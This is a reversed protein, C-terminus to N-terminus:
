WGRWWGWTFALGLGGGDCDAGLEARHWRTRGGCWGAPYRTLILEGGGDGGGRTMVVATVVAAVTWWETVVVVVTVVVTVVTVVTVVMVVMAITVLHLAISVPGVEVDVPAALLM